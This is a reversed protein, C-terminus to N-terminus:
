NKSSPLTSRRIMLTPKLTVNIAPAVDKEIGDILEHMEGTPQEVCVTM